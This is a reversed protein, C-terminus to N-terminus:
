KIDNSNWNMVIMEKCEKLTLGNYGYSDTLLWEGAWFSNEAGKKYENLCWGRQDNFENIEFRTNNIEYTYNFGAKKSVLM